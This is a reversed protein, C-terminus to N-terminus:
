FEDELESGRKIGTRYLSRDIYLLITLTLLMVTPFVVGSLELTQGEGKGTFIKLYLSLFQTVWILFLGNGLSGMNEFGFPHLVWKVTLVVILINAVSKFGRTIQGEASTEYPLYMLSFVLVIFSVAILIQLTDFKKNPM